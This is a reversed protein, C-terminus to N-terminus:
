QKEAETMELKEISACIKHCVKCFVQISKSGGLAEGAQVLLKARHDAQPHARLLGHHHRVQGEDLLHAGPVLEAVPWVQLEECVDPSAHTINLSNVLVLKYYFYIHEILPFLLHM